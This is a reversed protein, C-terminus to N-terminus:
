ALFPAPLVKFQTIESSYYDVIEGDDTTTYIILTDIDVATRPMQVQDFVIELGNHDGPM